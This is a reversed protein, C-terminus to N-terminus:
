ELRSTSSAARISTGTSAEAAHLLAPIEQHLRMRLDTPLNPDALVAELLGQLHDRHAALRREHIERGSPGYLDEHAERLLAPIEQCLRMRLDTHLDPDVLVDDVLEILREDDDGLEARPLAVIRENFEFGTELARRLPCTEAVRTIRALQDPSLEAPVRVEIQLQRPVSTHDYEVEVEVEGIDWEKTRAYMAIMTGICGAMAAPLLEHPTPGADHGGLHEPEDTVLLHRGGINIEQRLSRGSRKATANLSM